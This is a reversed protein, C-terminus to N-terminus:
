ISSNKTPSLFDKFKLKTIANPIDIFRDVCVDPAYHAINEPSYGFSVAIVPIGAARATDIDVASDGIMVSRNIDGKACAITHLLHHPHPKCIPVSDRGCITVFYHELSLRSLLTFAHDTLKNTCVALAWGMEQLFDLTEEVGTMIKARQAIHTGYLSLFRNYLNKFIEDPILNGQSELIKRFLSLGGQGILPRIEDSLVPAYGEEMLIKNLVWELDPASDVLTGDLDFIALPTTSM